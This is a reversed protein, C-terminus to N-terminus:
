RLHHHLKLREQKRDFFVFMCFRNIMSLGEQDFIHDPLIGEEQVETVIKDM